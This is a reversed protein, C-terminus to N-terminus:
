ARVSTATPDYLALLRDATGGRAGVLSLFADGDLAFLLGDGLATVTATRPSRRLLGLEGFVDDRGLVRLRVQAAGAATQTVEFQGEAILYFRDAPDGQRIVVDGATVQIPALHRLAEELRAASLGGFVPLRALRRLAADHPGTSTDAARGILAVSSVTGALLAGAIVTLTLPLGFMTALIPTALTGLAEAGGSSTMLVGTFRARFSDPVTRQLITTRIVDLILHGVSAVAIAVFAAVLTNAIGLLVLAAAFAAAALLLSPGLRPRLVLVGSLFAGAVGGVGTAASLYGTAADGGRFVDIALVVILINVGGFAFWTLMDLLLVGGVASLDLQPM